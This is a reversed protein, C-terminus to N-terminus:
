VTFQNVIHEFTVPDFLAIHSLMKRNLKINGKKLTFLCKSYNLNPSTQRIAANLRVIWLSRFKRKKCKRGIYSYCLAKMVQQNAVRFLRSHTGRFGKALTLIKKRRKRAVFGRKIRVM